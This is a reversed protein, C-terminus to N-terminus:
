AADSAAEVAIHLAGAARLPDRGLNGAAGVQVKHQDDLTAYAIGLLKGHRAQDILSELEAIVAM